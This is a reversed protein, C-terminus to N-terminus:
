KYSLLEVDFILTQNPGILGGAGKQGYGLEPPMFVKWKAGPKMHTIAERFGPIVGTLKFTAPKGRKYSSDFETGDILTGRYNVTVESTPKPSEGKGEKEVIYQLGSELTKVGPKSKNAELFERGAVLAAEAEKEKDALLKARGQQLAERMQELSLQLEKGNTVDEIAAAFAAADVKVGEQKFQQGFQYGLTYSFRQEPTDLDVALSALPLTSLLVATLTKTTNWSM